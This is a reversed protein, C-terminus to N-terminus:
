AKDSWHPRFVFIDILPRVTTCWNYEDICVRLSGKTTQAFYTKKNNWGGAGTAREIPPREVCVCFSAIWKLTSKHALYSFLSQSSSRRAARTSMADDNELSACRHSVLSTGAAVDLTSDNRATVRYCAYRTGVIGIIFQSEERRLVTRGGGWVTLQISNRVM